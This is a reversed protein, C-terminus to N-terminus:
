IAYTFVKIYLFNSVDIFNEQLAHGWVGRAHAKCLVLLFIVYMM